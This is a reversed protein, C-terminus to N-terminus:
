VAFITGVKVGFTFFTFIFNKLLERFNLTPQLSYKLWKSVAALPIGDWDFFIDSQRIETPREYRYIIYCFGYWVKRFSISNATKLMKKLALRM